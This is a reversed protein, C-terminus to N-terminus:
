ARKEVASRRALVLGRCRTWPWVRGSTQESAVDEELEEDVYADPDNREEEQVQPLVRPRPLASRDLTNRM